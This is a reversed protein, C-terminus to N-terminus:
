EAKRWNFLKNEKSQVIANESEIIEQELLRVIRRDLGFKEDYLEKLAEKSTKVRNYTRVSTMAEFSDAISVIKTIVDIQGNGTNYGGGNLREHHSLVALKINESIWKEDRLIIYGLDPHRKMIAYENKTLGGPKNIIEKPIKVKGIDHLLGAEMIETLYEGYYGLRLGLKNSCVGVDISHIFTIDNIDEIQQLTTIDKGFYKMCEQLRSKFYKMEPNKALRDVKRMFNTITDYELELEKYTM